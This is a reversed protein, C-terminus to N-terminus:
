RSYNEASVTTVDEASNFPVITPTLGGNPAADAPYFFITWITGCPSNMFFKEMLYNDLGYVFREPFLFCDKM